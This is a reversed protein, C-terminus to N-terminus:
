QGIETQQQVLEDGVEVVVGAVRDLGEVKVDEGGVSLGDCEVLVSSELGVGEERVVVGDLALPLVAVGVHEVEITAVGCPPHEVIDLEGAESEAGERRM